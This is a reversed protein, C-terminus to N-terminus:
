PQIYPHDNKLLPQHPNCLRAKNHRPSGHRRAPMTALSICLLVSQTPEPVQGAFIPVGPETEWGWSDVFGGPTNIAFPKAVSFGTYQIWGYHIGDGAGFEVAIYANSFQMFGSTDYGLLLGNPSGSDAGSQWAGPLSFYPFSSPAGIEMGLSIPVVQPDYFGTADIFASVRNDGLTDLSAFFGNSLFRFDDTGDGNIDFQTAGTLGLPLVNPNNGRYTVVVAADAGNPLLLASALIMSLTDARM